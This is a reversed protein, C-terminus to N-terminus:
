KIDTLHYTVQHNTQKNTNKTKIIRRGGLDVRVSVSKGSVVSKRDQWTCGPDPCCTAVDTTRRAKRQLMLKWCVWISQRPRGHSLILIDTTQWGTRRLEGMRSTKHTPLRTPVAM